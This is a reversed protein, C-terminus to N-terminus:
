EKLMHYGIVEHMFNNAIYQLYIQKYTSFMQTFCSLVKKGLIKSFLSKISFINQIYQNVLLNLVFNNKLGRFVM